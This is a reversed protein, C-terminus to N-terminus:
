IKNIFYVNINLPYRTTTSEEPVYRIQHSQEGMNFKFILHKIEDQNVKNDLYRNNQSILDVFSFGLFYKGESPREDSIPKYVELKKKSQYNLSM